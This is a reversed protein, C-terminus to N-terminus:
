IMSNHQIASNSAAQPACSVTTTVWMMSRVTSTVRMARAVTMTCVVGAASTLCVRVSTGAQVGVAVSSDSTFFGDSGEGVAAGVLVGVVVKVRVGIGEEVGAMAALPDGVGSGVAAKTTAGLRSLSVSLSGPGGSLMETLATKAPGLLTYRIV